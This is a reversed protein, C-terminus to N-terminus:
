SRAPAKSTNPLPEIGLALCIYKARMGATASGLVALIQQYAASIVTPDDATSETTALNQLMTRTTGVDALDRDIRALEATLLTIQERLRGSRRHRARDQQGPTGTVTYRQQHL